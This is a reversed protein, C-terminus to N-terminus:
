VEEKAGAKMVLGFGECLWFIAFGWWLTYVVYFALAFSLWWSNGGAKIGFFNYGVEIGRNMVEDLFKAKDFLEKQMLETKTEQFFLQWAYLAEKAPLNYRSVLEEGNNYFVAEADALAAEVLSGYDATVKLTNEARQVDAGSQALVTEAQQALPLTVSVTMSDGLYQKNSERLKPIFFSNEKAMSNFLNDSATFANHGNFVPSFMIVLVVLFSTGLALGLSFGKKDAILM